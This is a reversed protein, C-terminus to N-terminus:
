GNLVQVHEGNGQLLSELRAEVTQDERVGWGLTISGGLFLVRRGGTPVREVPPGRLGWENLRVEVNQLIASKSKRHDFDLAPDSSKHKLENAYRWMEIDYNTMSANKIRLIVEAGVLCLVVSIAVLLCSFVVNKVSNM